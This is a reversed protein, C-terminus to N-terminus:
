RCADTPVLPGRRSGGRAMSRWVDETAGSRVLRCETSRMGGGSWVLIPVIDAFLM